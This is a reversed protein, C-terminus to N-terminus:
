AYPWEISIQKHKHSEIPLTFTIKRGIPNNAAQLLDRLFAGEAPAGSPLEIVITFMKVKGDTDVPDRGEVFGEGKVLNVADEDRHREHLKGKEKDTVVELKGEHKVSWLVSDDGGILMAM